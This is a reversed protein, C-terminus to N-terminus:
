HFINFLLSYSCSFPFPPPLLLLPPPLRSPVEGQLMTSRENARDNKRLSKRRHMKQAASKRAHKPSDTELGLSDLLAREEEDIVLEGASLVADVDYETDHREAASSAQLHVDELQVVM